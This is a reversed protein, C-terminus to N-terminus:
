VSCYINNCAPDVLTQPSVINACDRLTDKVLLTNIVFTCITVECLLPEDAVVKGLHDSDIHSIILYLSM